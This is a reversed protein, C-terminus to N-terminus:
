LQSRPSEAIWRHCQNVCPVLYRLRQLTLRKSEYSFSSQFMRVSKRWQWSSCVWLLWICLLLWLDNKIEKVSSNLHWFLPSVQLFCATIPHEHLNKHSSCLTSWVDLNMALPCSLCGTVSMKSFANFKFCSRAVKRTLIKKMKIRKVCSNCTTIVHNASIAINNFVKQADMKYKEYVRQISTTHEDHAWKHARMHEDQARKHAWRTRMQTSMQTSMTHENTHERTSMQTSAHAWRTSMHTSMTSM